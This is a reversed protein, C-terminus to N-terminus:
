STPVPAAADQNWMWRSNQWGGDAGRKYFVSWKGNAAQVDAGAAATPNLQWTGRAYAHDGNVIVEDVTAAQQLMKVDHGKAITELVADRGSIAQGVPQMLIVDEALTPGMSAFDGANWSTLFQDVSAHIAATDAATTDPAVVPKQACAALVVASGLGLLLTHLKM